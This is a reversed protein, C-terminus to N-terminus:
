KSSVALREVTQGKEWQKRYDAMCRRYLAFTKKAKEEDGYVKWFGAYKYNAAGQEIFGRVDEPPYGLFLGIEHPFSDYKELRGILRAVCQNPNGAPYGFRRLLSETEKDSLDAKLRGPRYIYILARHDKMQLPLMCLGKPVLTRNFSRIQRRLSEQTDYECAFLNATKLGALTPSCNEVIMEESM